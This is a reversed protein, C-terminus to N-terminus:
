RSQLVPLSARVRRRRAAQESTGTLSGTLAMAMGPCHDNEGGLERKVDVLASRVPSFTDSRWLASIPTHRVNGKVTRWQVCPMVDGFPDILLSASGAGCHKEGDAACVEDSPRHTVGQAKLAALLGAPTAALSLPSQDGNDRPTIEPDIQVTVDFTRALAVMADVEHENYRTLPINLKMRVRGAAQQLNTMLRDFSGAVQTQRDHVAATAGHLSLEILIPDVEDVLRSLVEDRLAHGNSKLRVVFGRRRAHAGLEFFGPFVTPEGGSLVLNLVQMEALDDLVVLWEDLSLPTGPKARDNYCFVCDLNCAYTLELHASLLLNKRWAAKVVDTFSKAETGDGSV